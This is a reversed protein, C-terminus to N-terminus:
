CKYQRKASLEFRVRFLGERREGQKIGVVAVGFDGLSTVQVQTQGHLDLVQVLLSGKLREAAQDLTKTPCMWHLM